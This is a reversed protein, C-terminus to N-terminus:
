VQPGTPQAGPVWSESKKLEAADVARDYRRGGDEDDNSILLFLMERAECENSGYIGGAIRMQLLKIDILPAIAALALIAFASSHLEFDFILYSALYCIMIFFVFSINISAEKKRKMIIDTSIAMRRKEIDLAKEENIGQDPWRRIHSILDVLPDSLRPELNEKSEETTVDTGTRKGELKDIAISIQEVVEINTKAIIEATQLLNKLLIRYVEVDFHKLASRANEKTRKNLIKAFEDIPATIIDILIIAPLVGVFSTTIRLLRRLFEYM